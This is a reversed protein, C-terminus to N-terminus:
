PRTYTKILYDAGFSQVAASGVRCADSLASPRDFGQALRALYAGAFADGAGTPDVV